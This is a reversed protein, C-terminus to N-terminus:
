LQVRQQLKILRYNLTVLTGHISTLRDHIPSLAARKPTDGTCVPEPSEPILVRHLTNYLNDIQSDLENIAHDIGDIRVDISEVSQAPECECEEPYANTAHGGYNSTKQSVKVIPEPTKTYM